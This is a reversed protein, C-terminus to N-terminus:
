LQSGRQDHIRKLRAAEDSWKERAEAFKKEAEERAQTAAEAEKMAAEHRKKIKDAERLATEEEAEAKKVERRMAEMHRRAHATRTQAQEFTLGDNQALSPLAVICTSITFATFLCAQLVSFRHKFM